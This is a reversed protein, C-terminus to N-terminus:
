ESGTNAKIYAIIAERETKKRLGVFSMKNKPLYIAPNELYASINEETWIINSTIMANSYAYGEASGAKRGIIEWLNPGVKHRGGENLTHCARCRTFIRRGLNSPTEQIQLSSVTSPTSKNEHKEANKSCASLLLIATYFIPIHRTLTLNVM